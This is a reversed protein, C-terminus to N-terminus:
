KSYTHKVYEKISKVLIDADEVPEPLEVCYREFNTKDVWSSYGDQYTISYGNVGDVKEPTAKFYEIGVYFRM